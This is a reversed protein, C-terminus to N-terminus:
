MGALMDGVGFATIGADELLRAKRQPLASSFCAYTRSGRRFWFMPEALLEGDEALLPELQADSWLKDLWDRHTEGISAVMRDFEDRRDIANEM